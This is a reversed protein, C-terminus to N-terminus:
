LLKGVMGGKLFGAPSHVSFDTREGRVRATFDSLLLEKITKNNRLSSLLSEFIQKSVSSVSLKELTEPSKNSDFFIAFSVYRKNM